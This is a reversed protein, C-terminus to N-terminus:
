FASSLSSDKSPSKHSVIAAPLSGPRGCSRCGPRGISELCSLLGQNEEITSRNRQDSQMQMAAVVRVLRWDSLVMSQNLYMKYWSSLRLSTSTMPIFLHSYSKARCQVPYILITGVWGYNFTLLNHWLSPPIYVTKTRTRVWATRECRSSTEPRVTPSKLRPPTGHRHVRWNVSHCFSELFIFVFPVVPRVYILVTILM